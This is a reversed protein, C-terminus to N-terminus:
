GGAPSVRHDRGFHDRGHCSFLPYSFLPIIFVSSEASIEHDFARGSTGKISSIAKREHIFITGTTANQRGHLDTIKGVGRRKVIDSVGLPLLILFLALQNGGHVSQHARHLLDVDALRRWSAPNSWEATDPVRRGSLASQYHWGIDGIM